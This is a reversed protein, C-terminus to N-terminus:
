RKADRRILEDAAMDRIQDSWELAEEPTLIDTTRVGDPTTTIICINGGRRELHREIEGRQQRQPRIQHVTM